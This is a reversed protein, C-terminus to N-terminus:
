SVAPTENVKSVTYQIKVAPYSKDPTLGSEPVATAGSLTLGLEGGEKAIVFNAADAKDLTANNEVNTIALEPSSGAKIALKIQGTTETVDKAEDLKDKIAWGGNDIGLIKTVKIDTSGNNVIKYATASPATITGGKAPSVVTIALPVTAQIQAEKLTYVNMQTSASASDANDKAADFSGSEGVTADLAFAPIAGMALTTSLVLATLMKQTKKM